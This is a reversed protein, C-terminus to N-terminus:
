LSVVQHPLPAFRGHAEHLEMTDFDHPEDAPIQQLGVRSGRHEGKHSARSHCAAAWACAFAAAAAAVGLVSPPLHTSFSLFPTSLTLTDAATADASADPASAEAACPRGPSRYCEYGEPLQYCRSPHASMEAPLDAAAYSRVGPWVGGHSAFVAAASRQNYCGNGFRPSSIARWTGVGHPDIVRCSKCPDPALSDRVLTALPPESPLPPPPPPPSPRTSPAPRAWPRSAPSDRAATSADCAWGRECDVRCQSYDNDKKFCRPVGLEPATACCELSHPHGKGGCKASLPVCPPPSPPPPPNLHLPPAPSPPPAPPLWLLAADCQGSYLEEAVLRSACKGAALHCLQLLPKGRHWEYTFAASCASGHLADCGRPPSGLRANQRGQLEGCTFKWPPSPSPPRPPPPAEGGAAASRPASCFSCGACRCQQCMEMRMKISCVRMDCARRGGGGECERPPPPPPPREESEDYSGGEGEAAGCPQERSGCDECDSGLSCADFKSGPGGDDCHGDSEFMCGGGCLALTHDVGCRAGTARPGCDACDAGLACSKFQAGPGGDDCQGDASTRCKDTCLFAGLAGEDRPSCDTCDSGLACTNGESGPGSDDCEGDRAYRCEDSCVAAAHAACLAALLLAHRLPPSSTPSAM